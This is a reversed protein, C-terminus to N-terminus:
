QKDQEEFQRIVEEQLLTIEDKVLAHGIGDAMLNPYVPTNPPTNMLQRVLTLAVNLGRAQHATLKITYNDKM